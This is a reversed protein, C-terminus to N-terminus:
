AIKPGFSVDNSEGLVLAVSKEWTSRELDIDDYIHAKLRTYMRVQQPITFMVRRIDLAVLAVIDIHTRDTNFAYSDRRATYSAAKVQVRMFKSDCMAVVDIHEMPTLM